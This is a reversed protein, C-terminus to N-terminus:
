KGRGSSRCGKLTLGVVHDFVSLCNTQTNLTNWWITPNASLPNVWSMKRAQRRKWINLLTCCGYKWNNLWHDIERKVNQKEKEFKIYQTYNDLGKLRNSIKKGIKRQAMGFFIFFIYFVDFIKFITKRPM